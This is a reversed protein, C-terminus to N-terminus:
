CAVRENFTRFVTLGAKPQVDPSLPLSLKSEVWWVLDRFGLRHRMMVTSSLRPNIEFVKPGEPTMRLQINICGDVGSAEAIGHLLTTIAPVEEVIAKDTRGGVLWRRLALSRIEGRHAFLACTFEQDEGELLEQAMTGSPMEAKAVLLRAPTRITEQGKGGAGNRPKILLPLDADSADELACSRPAGLGHRCLWHATDLKDLFVALLASNIMLVPVRCPLPDLALRALEPESTPLVLDYHSALKALADPYDPLAALPLDHMSHFTFAGPWPGAADAGDVTAHPFADRLARGIADGIDGNAGTVLFRMM